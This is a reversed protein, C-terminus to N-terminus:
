RAGGFTLKFLVALSHDEFSYNGLFAMRSHPVAPDFGIRAYAHIVHGQAEREALWANIDQITDLADRTTIARRIHVTTM